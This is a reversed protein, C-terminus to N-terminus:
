TIRPSWHDICVLLIMVSDYNAMKFETCTNVASRSICLLLEHSWQEESYRSMQYSEAQSHPGLSLSLQRQWPVRWCEESWPWQRDCLRSYITLPDLPYIQTYSWFTQKYVSNVIRKWRMHKQGLHRQQRILNFHQKPPNNEQQHGINCTISSLNWTFGIM